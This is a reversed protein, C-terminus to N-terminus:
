ARPRGRLEGRRGQRPLAGQRRGRHSRTGLRGARRNASAVGVSITLTPHHAEPAHVIGVSEVSERARRMAAVAAAETQEPLVVLFEEGGYRYVRDAGRLSRQLAKAVGALAEDGAIHGYHDNYRKFQDLDCMALVVPRGYRSLQSQLAEVDEELRLRNAVGWLPDVRAMQFSAQSDRRLAVIRQALARYAGVVRRAAILRAELEDVDLPKGIYDDAGARVAEVIDRKTAGSSTFLLYTYRGRDLERVRRCLTMGDMGPMRWDSVIVEAPQEAHLELAELGNSAVRCYQGLQWLAVVLASRADPDDDVVLVDLAEDGDAQAARVSARM